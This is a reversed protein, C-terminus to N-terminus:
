CRRPPEQSVGPCKCYCDQGALLLAPTSIPWSTEGRLGPSNCFSAYSNHPPEPTLIPQHSCRPCILRHPEPLSLSRSPYRPPPPSPLLLKLGLPSQTTWKGVGSLPCAQPCFCSSCASTQLGQDQLGPEITRARKRIRPLGVLM